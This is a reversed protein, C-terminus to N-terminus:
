RDHHLEKAATTLEHQYREFIARRIPKYQSTLLGNDISFPQDAIVMRSVFEDKETMANVSKVAAYIAQTDAPASSPSIVAVLETQQPSFIVCEAIAGVNRLRAEIPQVDIKKGNDLVIVNDSRGKIYLFGDKDIFGLDGTRVGGEPTFIKESAGEPAFLYRTNVPYDSYVVISGDDDIVVKKGDIVQGVSGARCASPHNKTVICTENMGYGEYLPLGIQPYFDLTASDAPASGTWLYRIREGFLARAQMKQAAEDGGQRLIHQRAAEFFAPVGMVVTPQRLAMFVFASQYNSLVVDHGYKLASYIWYRQQLLSLPLFVFLSDGPGHAFIRQVGRLSADISGITAALGKPIGTSGSTFKVTTTDDPAYTVTPLTAPLDALFAHISTIDRIEEGVADTKKDTFLFKLRYDSVLSPTATFKGPDFGATRVKLRLAALDLLVWELRNDSLIGITDGATVGLALLGNAVRGAMLYLESLPLTKQEGLTAIFLNGGHEPPTNVIENIISYTM